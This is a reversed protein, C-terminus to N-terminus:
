PITSVSRRWRHRMQLAELVEELRYVNSGLFPYDQVQRVIGARVPNELVYRAVSLADEDDRLTHEFGYRQWLSVGFQKQFHFGSLQKARAIFLRGDSDDSLGEILLHVHDPMFCYALIAMQSGAAARLFQLYVVAVCDAMVFLRRREHTCFTLVYRHLGRYNLTKLRAPHNTIM